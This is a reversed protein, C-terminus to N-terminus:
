RFHLKSMKVTKDTSGSLLSCENKISDYDILAFDTVYDDHVKIREIEKVSGDNSIEFSAITTDDSCSAFYNEDSLLSYIRRVRSKFCNNNSNSNNSNDSNNNKNSRIDFVSIEGADTGCLINYENFQICSGGCTLSFIMTCGSSLKSRYDWVRTLGDQGTTAFISNSSRNFSVGNIQKYHANNISNVLSSSRGDGSNGNNDSIDWLKIAGDWGVSAFRNSKFPDCAIGSVYDNHASISEINTLTQEDNILFLGVNGDDQATITINHNLIKVDSVGSELLCTDLENGQNLDMLKVAGDWINGDLRSLGVALISRSESACVSDVHLEFSTAM